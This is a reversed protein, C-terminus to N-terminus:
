KHYDEIKEVIVIRVKRWDTQSGLTAVEVGEPKVILRLAGFLRVSWFGHRDASLPEWNGPLRELVAFSEVAELDRIRQIIKKRNEEGYKRRLFKGNELDAKLRESSFKVEL